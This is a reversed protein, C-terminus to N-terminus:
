ISLYLRQYADLMRFIDFKSVKELSKEGMYQITSPNDLFWKMALYLESLSNNKILFGNKGNEILEHSAGVNSAILPCGMAMGELLALSLGERFSPLVVVHTNKLISDVCTVHGHFRVISSLNLDHCMNELESKLPGDGMINLFFQYGAKQLQYVAKLLLSHGKVITLQASITFVVPPAVPRSEPQFFRNLFIGNYIVKVKKRQRSSIIPALEDCWQKKHTNSIAILCSTNQVVILDFFHYITKKFPSLYDQSIIIPRTIISPVNMWKGLVSTILDFFHPGQCHIAHPRYQKLTQYVLRFYQWRGKPEYKILVIKQDQALKQFDAFLRGCNPYIVIPLFTRTPIMQCTQLFRKEPGCIGRHGDKAVGFGVFFVIRKVHSGHASINM